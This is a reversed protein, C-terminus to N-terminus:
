KVGGSLLREVEEPSMSIGGINMRRFAEAVQEDTADAKFTLWPIRAGRFLDEANSYPALNLDDKSIGRWDKHVTPDLGAAAVISAWWCESRGLMEIPIRGPGTGIVARAGSGLARIPDGKSTPDAEVCVRHVKGGNGLSRGLLTSIRQQGDIVLLQSSWEGNVVRHVERLVVTGVPLGMLITDVFACADAESWVYPRQYKPLVFSDAHSIIDSVARFELDYHPLM